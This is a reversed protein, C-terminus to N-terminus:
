DIFRVTHEKKGPESFCGSMASSNTSILLKNRELLVWNYKFSFQTMASKVVKSLSANFLEGCRDGSAQPRCDSAVPTM